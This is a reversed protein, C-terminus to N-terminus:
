WNFEYKMGMLLVFQCLYRYGWIIAHYTQQMVCLFCSVIMDPLPMKIKTLMIECNYARRLDVQSIFCILQIEQSLSLVLFFPSPLLLTEVLLSMFNAIIECLFFVYDYCEYFAICLIM